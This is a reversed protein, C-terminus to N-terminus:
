SFDYIIATFHKIVNPGPRAHHLEILSLRVWGPSFMIFCNEENSVRQFIIPQTNSDQTDNGLTDHCWYYLTNKMPFDKLRTWYKPYLSLQTQFPEDTFFVQQRWLNGSLIMSFLLVWCLVLSVRQSLCQACHCLIILTMVIFTKISLTTLRLTTINLTM